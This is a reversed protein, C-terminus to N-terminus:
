GDVPAAFAIWDKVGDDRVISRPTLGSANLLQEFVSFTFAKKLATVVVESGSRAVRRIEALTRRPETNQILTVAFVKDFVGGRFPLREADAQILHVRQRNRLRSRAMSLLGGALDLGVAPTELRELLLGTGCGDDLVIDGASSAVHRLIADYKAEQELRYRLDYLEGGLNDYSERIQRKDEAHM